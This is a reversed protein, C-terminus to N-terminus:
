KFPNLIIPAFFVKFNWRPGANDRHVVYYQVEVGYRIPLKGLRFMGITGLGIPLSLKDGSKAKWDVTINPTMGILQTANMKWNIFYQINAQSTSKRGDAGAYSFWQQGLVGINWNDIGLGGYDKGLRVALGAPGAQWKEQGLVDDTATPFIQTPGLGWVFGDDRNPGLLTLLVSDGLGSTRGGYIDGAIASLSPSAAIEAPSRNFLKGADDRIPASLIPIIPRFILNWKEDFVPVPMVPEILTANLVETGPVSDGRLLATDNEIILLWVDSLPNNSKKAMEELSTDGGAQAHAFLPYIVAVLVTILFNSCRKSM